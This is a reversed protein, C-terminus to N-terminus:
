RDNESSLRKETIGAVLPHMGRLGIVNCKNESKAVDNDHVDSKKQVECSVGTIGERSRSGAISRTHRPWQEIYVTSWKNDNCQQDYIQQVIPISSKPTNFLTTEICSTIYQWVRRISYKHDNDSDSHSTYEIFYYRGHPKLLRHIQSLLEDSQKKNNITDSM